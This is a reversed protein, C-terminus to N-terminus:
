VTITTSTSGVFVVSINKWGLVTILGAFNFSDDEISEVVTETLIFEM